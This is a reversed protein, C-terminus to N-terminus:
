VLAGLLMWISGWSNISVALNQRCLIPTLIGLICGESAGCGFETCLLFYGVSVERARKM